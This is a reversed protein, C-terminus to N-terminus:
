HRKELIQPCAFLIDVPTHIYTCYSREPEYYACSACEYRLPKDENRRTLWHAAADIVTPRDWDPAESDPIRLRLIGTANKTLPNANILSSMTCEYSTVQSVSM